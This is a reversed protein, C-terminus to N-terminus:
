KKKINSIEIKFQNEYQQFKKEDVVSDVGLCSQITFGFCSFNESLINTEKIQESIGGDISLNISHSTIEIQINKINKKQIPPLLINNFKAYGGIKGLLNSNKKIQINRIGEDSDVVWHLDNVGKHTQGIGHWSMQDSKDYNFLKLEDKSKMNPAPALEGVM